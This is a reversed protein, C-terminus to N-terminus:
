VNLFRVGSENNTDEEDEIEEDESEEEDDTEDEEDDDEEDEEDEEDDEDEDEDDERRAEYEYENEEDDEDVILKYTFAQTIEDFVVYVEIEGSRERGDIFSEFEIALLSKGDVEEYEFTYTGYNNGDVFELSIEKENNSTEIEITSEEVVVGNVVVEFSFKTEDTEKKYSTSVYNLDDISSKFNYKEEDEEFEKSGFVDYTKNGYILIGEIDYSTEDGDIEENLMNYHMVYTITSRTLDSTKFETKYTYEALESTSETIVFGNEDNLFREALELYPLVHDIVPNTTVTNLRQVSFSTLLNQTETHSLIAATSMASFSVVQNDGSFTYPEIPDIPQNPRLLFSFILIFVVMFSALAFAFRRQMGFRSKEIPKESPKLNFKSVDLHKPIHQEIEQKLIKKIDKERM